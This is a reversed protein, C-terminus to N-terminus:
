RTNLVIGNSMMEATDLGNKATFTLTLYNEKLGAQCNFGCHDANRVNEGIELIRMNRLQDYGVKLGNNSFVEQGAGSAMFIKGNSIVLFKSEAGNEPAGSNAKGNYRQLV